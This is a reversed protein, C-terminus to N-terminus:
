CGDYGNTTETVAAPNDNDDDYIMEHPLILDTFTWCAHFACVTCAVLLRIVQKLSDLEHFIFNNRM